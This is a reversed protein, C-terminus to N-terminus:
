WEGWQHRAAVNLSLALILLTAGFFHDMNIQYTILPLFDPLWPTSQPSYSPQPSFPFYEGLAGVPGSKGVSRVSTTDSKKELWLGWFWERVSKKCSSCDKMLYNKSQVKIWIVYVFFLSMAQDTHYSHYCHNRSVCSQTQLKLNRAQGGPPALNCIQDSANTVCKVVLHCRMAKSQGVPM